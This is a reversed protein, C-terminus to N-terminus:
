GKECTSTKINLCMIRINTKKKKLYLSNRNLTDM